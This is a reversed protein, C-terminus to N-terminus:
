FQTCLIKHTTKIFLLSLQTSLYNLEETKGQKLTGLIQTGLHARTREHM